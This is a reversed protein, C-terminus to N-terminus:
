QSAVINFDCYYLGLETSAIPVDLLREVITRSRQGAARAKMLESLSATAGKDRLVTWIEPAIVM